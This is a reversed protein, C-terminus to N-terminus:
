ANEGAVYGTTWCLQLSYGGSPRNIHLLDGVVFLGPFLRSQMTRTDIETLAIGGDCVVAWDYGMTGTVTLPLNKLIQVLQKREQQTMVNVKREQLDPPVLAVLARAMGTPVLQKIVTRVLKNKNRDFVSLVHRDAETPDLDPLLDIVTAVPGDKLLAKVDNASNLILPGSLGFHTFLLRGKRSVSDGGISTFTIKMTTGALDKVWQEKVQLPVIDPTAEHVTHGVESLWQLGEGTSGTARYSAGGTALIVSEAKFTGQSTEVGTVAGDEVCLREVTIDTRLNVEYERIYDTLVRTVDPAKQTEPFARNHAEVVLALGRGTFFDFTAQV